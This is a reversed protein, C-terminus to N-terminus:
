GARRLALGDLILELGGEFLAERAADRVLGGIPAFMPAAPSPADAPGSPAIRADAQHEYTVGLAYDFVTVM